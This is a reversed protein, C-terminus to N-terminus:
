SVLNIFGQSASAGGMSCLNCMIIYRGNGLEWNVKYGQSLTYKMLQEANSSDWSGNPWPHRLLVNLGFIMDWGVVQSFHNVEDWQQASM